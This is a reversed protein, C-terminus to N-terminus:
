KLTWKAVAMDSGSGCLLTLEKPKKLFTFREDKSNSFQMIGVTYSTGSAITGVNLEYDDNLKLTTNDYDFVDKNKIVFQSGDFTLSANLVIEKKEEPGYVSDIYSNYLNGGIFIIALLGIIYYSVKKM